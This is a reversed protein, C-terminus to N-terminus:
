RLMDLPYTVTQACQPVHICEWITCVLLPVRLEICVQIHVWTKGSLRCALTYMYSSYMLSPPEYERGYLIFAGWRGHSWKYILRCDWVYINILRSRKVFRNQSRAAWAAAWRRRARWWAAAWAPVHSSMIWQWMMKLNHWSGLYPLVHKRYLLRCWEVLENKCINVRKNARGCSHTHTFLSPFDRTPGCTNPTPCVLVCTCACMCM